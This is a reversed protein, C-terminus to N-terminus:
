EHENTSRDTENIVSKVFYYGEVIEGTKEPIDTGPHAGFGLRFKIRQPGLKHEGESSWSRVQVCGQSKAFGLAARQLDTGIGQRRFEPVVEWNGIFMERGFSGFPLNRTELTIIGVVREGIIAALYTWGPKTGGDPTTTHERDIAVVQGFLPDGPKVERIEWESM